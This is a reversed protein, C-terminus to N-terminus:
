LAVFDGGGRSWQSSQAPGETGRALVMCQCPQTHPHTHTDTPGMLTATYNSTLLGGGGGRLLGACGTLRLFVAVFVGSLRPLSGCHQLPWASAEM